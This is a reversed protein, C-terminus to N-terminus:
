TKTCALSVHVTREGAAEDPEFNQYFFGKHEVPAPSLDTIDSFNRVVFLHFFNHFCTFVFVEWIATTKPWTQVKFQLGDKKLIKGRQDENRRVQVLGLPLLKELM